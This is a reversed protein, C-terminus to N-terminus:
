LQEEPWKTLSLYLLATQVHKKVDLAMGLYGSHVNVLALWNQMVLTTTNSM